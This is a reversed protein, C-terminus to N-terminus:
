ERKEDESEMEDWVTHEVLGSFRLANALHLALASPVTEGRPGHHHIHIAVDTDLGHRRYLTVIEAYEGDVRISEAIRKGLSEIPEGSSRLHIIELRSM